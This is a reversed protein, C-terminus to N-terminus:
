NLDLLHTYKRSYIDKFINKYTEFYRTKKYSLEITKWHKELANVGEYSIKVDKIKTNQQAHEVPITLTVIGNATKIRNRQQWSKKVFQVHDFIVFTETSAIMEIYGLWPLYTPQLITCKM